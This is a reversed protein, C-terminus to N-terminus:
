FSFRAGLTLVRAALASSITGFNSSAINNSISGPSLNLNNFVNFADMRLEFRANEGLVPMKPLGFGKSITLDVDKYGPVTLSNRYVGPNQPLATGACTGCNYATYTPTSFYAAGGNPFNSNSGVNPPAAQEFADNSTSHGAGGLYGAPFLSSYGCNGCYLNGGQVSVMPSWPFGSHWNFIGSLSWGGAIKDVWSNGGRFFTPQWMGFVKFANTVNYDSRGYSLTPDYPYPQESYPASSTDMSRSWAYQVDAMFQRSFQHKLEALMGNYNGRGNSNYLNNGDLQPNQPYGLTAPVALPNENFFTDRSVSGQYGLSMVYQHGLDYQMDFSYHHTRMTPLNTPFLAIGVSGTAPLGNPGLPSQM